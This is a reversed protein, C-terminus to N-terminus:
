RGGRGGRAHVSPSRGTDCGEHHERLGQPSPSTRQCGGAQSERGQASERAHGEGPHGDGRREQCRPEGATDMIPVGCQLWSPRKNSAPARPCNMLLSGDLAGARVVPRAVEKKFVKLMAGLLNVVRAPVFPPLEALASSSLVPSATPDGQFIDEIALPETVCRQSGRNIARHVRSASDVRRVVFRLRLTLQM